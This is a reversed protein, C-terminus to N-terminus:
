PSPSRRVWTNGGPWTRSSGLGRGGGPRCASSPRVVQMVAEIREGAV